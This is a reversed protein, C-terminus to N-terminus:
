HIRLLFESPCEVLELAAGEQVVIPQLSPLGDSEFRRSYLSPPLCTQGHVIPVGRLWWTRPGGGRRRILRLTAWPAGFTQRLSLRRRTPAPDPQGGPAGSVQDQETQQRQLVPLSSRFRHRVGLELGLDGGAVDGFDKRAAVRDFARQLFGGRHRLLLAAGVM